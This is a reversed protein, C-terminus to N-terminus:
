RRALWTGYLEPRRHKMFLRRAHSRVVMELDVDAYLITEELAPASAIVSGDPACVFSEGGFTLCEEEGVRNCLATFYGNQFAAVQLESQYLGEPWEGVSGAQPVVVLEAGGLALARMYEPFHRDYCIAVGIRGVATEYVPAGTDGPTYYGQEHFCAYETIHIMRTCGLLRGDADIVPSSDFTRHGDREFLNLVVVMELEAATRQFLEVVPGPVPEALSAFDPGAPHQPYFPEFALEAFCVLQAGGAAAAELAALGRAVNAAKDSTARQQVLALRM